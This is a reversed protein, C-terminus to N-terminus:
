RLWNYPVLGGDVRTNTTSVARKIAVCSSNEATLEYISPQTNLAYRIDLVPSVSKNTCQMDYYSPIM